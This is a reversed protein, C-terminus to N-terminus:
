FERDSYAMESPKGCFYVLFRQKKLNPKTKNLTSHLSYLNITCDKLWFVRESKKMQSLQQTKTKSM